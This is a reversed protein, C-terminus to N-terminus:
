KGAGCQATMGELIDSELKNYSRDLQLRSTGNHTTPRYQAPMELYDTYNGFNTSGDMPLDLVGNDALRQTELFYDQKDMGLIDRERMTYFTSTPDTNQMAIDSFYYTEDFGEKKKNYHRYALVLIFISVVLGVVALALFMTDQSIGLGLFSEDGM